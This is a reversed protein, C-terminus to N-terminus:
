VVDKRVERAKSRLVPLLRLAADADRCAYQVASDRDVHVISPRPIDGEGFVQIVDRVTDQWKDVRDWPKLPKDAAYGGAFDKELDGILRKVLTGTKRVQKEEETMSKGKRTDPVAERMGVAARRMYEYLRAKSPPMVVDSYDQMKMGLYRYALPKLGIRFEQAWFALQMTDVWRRPHIGVSQIQSLDALANHFVLTYHKLRYALRAVLEPKGVPVFMGTGPAISVTVCWTGADTFETDVGTYVPENLLGQVCFYDDVDQMTRAETYQPAPYADLPVDSYDARVLKRLRRFDDQLAIMWKTDHLGAAPHYTPVFPFGGGTVRHLYDTQTGDDRLSATRMPLLLPLGHQMEMDIDPGLVADVAIAGMVVIIEPQVDRLEFQSFYAWCARAQERTPNDIGGSKTRGACNHVVGATTVFNQYQDVEICYVSREGRLRPVEEVIPFDYFQSNSSPYRACLDFSRDRHEELLKYQLSEPTFPAVLKSLKRTGKVGFFIRGARIYAEKVYRQVHKLLFTLDSNSFRTACIEAHVSKVRKTPKTISGDDLYWIALSSVDFFENVVKRAVKSRKPWQTYVARWLPLRPSTWRCAPYEKGAAKAKFDVIKADRGNLVRLKWALYDRQKATHVQTVYNKGRTLDGLLMGCLLSLQQRNLGRTGTAIRLKPNLKAIPVWGVKEVLIQHDETFVAASRGKGKVRLNPYSLRYLKRGALPARFANIIEGDYQLGGTVDVCRVRPVYIRRLVPPLHFPFDRVLDRIPVTRGDALYVRTTGRICKAANSLYVDERQLGALPLYQQDLEQGTKGAFVKDQKYEQEAPGEGIM